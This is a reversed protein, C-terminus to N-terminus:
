GRAEFAQLAQFRLGLAEIEFRDSFFPLPGIVSASLWKNCYIAALRVTEYLIEYCIGHTQSCTLCHWFLLLRMCSVQHGAVARRGATRGEHEYLYQAM